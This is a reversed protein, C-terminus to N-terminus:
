ASELLVRSRAQERERKKEVSKLFADLVKKVAKGDPKRDFESYWQLIEDSALDIEITYYPKEVERKKRLFLIWTEGKAMKGMYHNDRGVCHHLTRGEVMLEECKVAPIMVYEDNKWRYREVQPLRERIKEDLEAYGKLREADKRKDDLEVLQDHRQKLNKPLRVIDDTTDMGEAKAMRLYDSWTVAVDYPPVEQRKMYGVMREVSGIEELINKCQFVSVENEELWTLMRDTIRIGKEEEYQLWNLMKLGGDLRVLRNIRQKNMGLIEKPGGGKCRWKEYGDVYERTLRFLGVKVFFELFPEGEIRGLFNGVPIERREHRMWEALPAYQLRTGKLAAKANRTYLYGKAKWGSMCGPKADVWVDNGTFGSNVHYDCWTRKGDYTVLAVEHSQYKEGRASSDKRVKFYRTLFGDPTKQLYVAQKEDRM